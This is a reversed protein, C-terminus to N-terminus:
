LEENKVLEGRENYYEWNGFREPKAKTTTVLKMTQKGTEPDQVWVTDKARDILVAKYLGKLKLQGNEFFSKM